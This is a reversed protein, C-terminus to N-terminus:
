YDSNQNYPEVLFSKLTPHRQLLYVVTEGQKGKHNNTTKSHICLHNIKHNSTAILDWMISHTSVCFHVLVM